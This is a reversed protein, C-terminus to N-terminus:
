SGVVPPFAYYAQAGVSASTISFGDGEIGTAYDMAGRWGLSGNLTINVEMGDPQEGLQKTMVEATALAADRDRKHVPQPAAVMEDFKAALAALAAAVTLGRVGISYSM